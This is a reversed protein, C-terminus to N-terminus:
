AEVLLLIGHRSMMKKWDRGLLRCFVGGYGELTQGIEKMAADCVGLWLGGFSGRGLGYAFGVYGFVSKRFAKEGPSVKWCPGLVVFVDM